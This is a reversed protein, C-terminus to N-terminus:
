RANEITLTQDDYGQRRVRELTQTLVFYLELCDFYAKTLFDKCYVLGLPTTLAQHSITMTHFRFQICKLGHLLLSPYYDFCFIAASAACGHVNTV